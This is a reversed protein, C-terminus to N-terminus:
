VAEGSLTDDEVRTGQHVGSPGAGDEDINVDADLLPMSLKVGSGAALGSPGAVGATGPDQDTNLSPMSLDAGSHPISEQPVNEDM